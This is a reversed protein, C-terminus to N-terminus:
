DGDPFMIGMEAIRASGVLYSAAFQMDALERPLLIAPIPYQDAKGWVLAGNRGCGIPSPRRFALANARREGPAILFQEVARLQAPEQQDPIVTLNQGLAQATRPQFPCNTHDVPRLRLTLAMVKTRLQWLLEIGHNM